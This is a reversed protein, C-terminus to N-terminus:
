IMECIWGTNEVAASLRQHEPPFHSFVGPCGTSIAPPLFRGPDWLWLGPPFSRIISQKEHQAAPTLLMCLILVAEDSDGKM